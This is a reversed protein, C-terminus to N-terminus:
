RSKMCQSVGGAAVIHVPVAGHPTCRPSCCRSTDPTNGSASRSHPHAGNYGARRVRIVRFGAPATSRALPTFWDAFVGAHVLPLPEDTGSEAYQLEVDGVRLSHMSEEATTM